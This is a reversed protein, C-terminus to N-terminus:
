YGFLSRYKKMARKRQPLDGYWYMLPNLVYVRKVISSDESLKTIVGLETLENFARCISVESTNYESAFYKNDGFAFEVLPSNRKLKSMIVELLCFSVHSRASAIWDINKYFVKVGKERGM